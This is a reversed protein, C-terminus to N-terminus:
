KKKLFVLWISFVAILGISTLGFWSTSIAEICTARKGFISMSDCIWSDRLYIAIILFGLLFSGSIIIGTKPIWRLNQKPKM